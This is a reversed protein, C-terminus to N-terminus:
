AAKRLPQIDSNYDDAYSKTAPTKGSTKEEKSEMARERLTMYFVIIVIATEIPFFNIGFFMEAGTGGALVGFRKLAGRAAKRAGRSGTLFMILGIAFSICLTVATGIAPLSGIGVFDLVDKVIALSLAIGFLWDMFPNIHKSLGMAVRMENITAKAVGRPNADKIMASASRAKELNDKFENEM